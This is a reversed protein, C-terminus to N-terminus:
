RSARALRDIVMGVEHQLAEIDDSYQYLRLDNIATRIAHDMAENERSLRDNERGLRTIDRDCHQHLDQDDITM